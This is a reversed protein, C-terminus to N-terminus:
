VPPRLSAMTPQAFLLRMSDDTAFFFFAGAGRALGALVCSDATTASVNRIPLPDSPNPTDSFSIQLALNNLNPRAKKKIKVRKAIKKIRIKGKRRVKKKKIKTRFRYSDMLTKARAGFAASGQMCSAQTQVSQVGAHLAGLRTNNRDIAQAIEGFNWQAVDMPALGARTFVGNPTAALAGSLGATWGSVRKLTNRYGYTWAPLLPNTAQALAWDDPEWDLLTAFMADNALAYLYGPANPDASLGNLAIIRNCPFTARLEAVLQSAVTPNSDGAQSQFRTNVVFIDQPRIHNALGPPNASVQRTYTNVNMANNIRILMTFGAPGGTSTLSGPLAPCGAQKGSGVGGTAANVPAACAFLALAAAVLTAAARIRGTNPHKCSGAM